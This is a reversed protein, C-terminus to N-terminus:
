AQFEQYQHHQYTTLDYDEGDKHQTIQETGGEIAFTPNALLNSNFAELVQDVKEQPETAVIAEQATKALRAQVIAYESHRLRENYRAMEVKFRVKDEASMNEFRKKEVPDLARWREGLVTGMEVFKIGPFEKMVQPRMEFTFFVFSGRARKPADPDKTSRKYRKGGQTYNDMLNGRADHGPPPIYNAMQADFRAKDQAARADWTAREETTLNKYMHSTYKSLQGFTMGPNERKFQDRMANQYLLYASLNRKPANSDRVGHNPRKVRASPNLISDGKADYGVPPVYNSLQHLYRQKDAEARGAWAQKEVPLMEAYMASTYKALQGFTMGPNQAKFQERMANQYLLYASLNRKPAGPDRPRKKPGSASSSTSVVGHLSASNPITFTAAGAPPGQTTDYFSSLAAATPATQPIVTTSSLVSTTTSSDISPDAVFGYSM